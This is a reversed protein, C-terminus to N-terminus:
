TIARTLEAEKIAGDLTINFTKGRVVTEIKVKGSIGDKTKIGAQSGNLLIKIQKIPKTRVKLAKNDELLRVRSVSYKILQILYVYENTAIM